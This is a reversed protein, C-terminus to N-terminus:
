RRFLQPLFQTLYSRWNTWEHGGASETYKYKYGARDLYARFDKNAGYLFDEKGIAIWYFPPKNGFQRAFKKDMDTYYAADGGTRGIRSSDMAASFLGVYGFREPYERSLSMSHFGGMSLGAVATHWKDPITRFTRNVYDMIEPFHKEFEGDMTHPLNFQPYEFGLPSHGPAADRAMNGNPMVVIMPRAKGQAILNDLIQVARGLTVWSTEDGGMGHLLYLVPYRNASKEYGAPTYVTMRRESGNFESPYWVSHLSGHPVDQVTYLDARGGPVIFENFLSTVDREVYVSAPDFTKIGDVEFTYTYLDPSLPPLTVSWVGLSDKMARKTKPMALLVERAHPAYYRFTVSRDPHVEPSIIQSPATRIAEQALIPFALSGAILCTILNKMKFYSKPFYHITFLSYHVAERRTSLM